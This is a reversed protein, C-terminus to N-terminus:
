AEDGDTRGTSPIGKTIDLQWAAVVGNNPENLDGVVSEAAMICGRVMEEDPVITLLTYNGAEIQTAGRGMGFTYRAGVLRQKQKRTHAGISEFITVGTVGIARWADLVQDLRDADQLVFMVMYM